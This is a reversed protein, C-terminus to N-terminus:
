AEWLRDPYVGARVMDLVAARVIPADERYTMGYWREPSPLVKVRTRGSAVMGDVVAPLYLEGKALDTAPNRLFAAFAEELAPFLAPTFGWTNLSVVADAPLPVWADGDEAYEAGGAAPRIRTREVVGRLFGDASVDCVGRAVTGNDTLTNAIRFGAMCFDDGRGPRRLEEALLRYSRRGYFDDANIVAFPTTVADRCALVAHGTGWPKARGEPVSVGFSPPIELRQHAYAVDARREIRAGVSERFTAEHEPRVVFVVKGFGERLADFIAYEMLISGDPGVPEVQKLGGYRSGLGAAMIVLALDPAAASVRTM